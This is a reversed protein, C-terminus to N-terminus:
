GLEGDVSTAEKGKSIELVKMRSECILDIVEKLLDKTNNCIFVNKRISRITKTFEFLRENDYKAYYVIPINRMWPFVNNEVLYVIFNVGDHIDVSNNKRENFDKRQIDTLFLDIDSDNKLYKMAENSSCFSLVQIGLTRFLRQIAIIKEPHDDIWIIKSKQIFRLSEKRLKLLEVIEINSVNSFDVSEIAAKIDPSSLEFEVNSIKMKTMKKIPFLILVIGLIMCIYTPSTIKKPLLDKILVSLLSISFLVIVAFIRAITSTKM